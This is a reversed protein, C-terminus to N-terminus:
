SGSWRRVYCMERRAPVRNGTSRTTDLITSRSSAEGISRCLAKDRPRDMRRYSLARATRDWITVGVATERGAYVEIKKVFVEPGIPPEVGPRDIREGEIWILDYSGAPVPVRCNAGPQLTIVMSAFAITVPTKPKGQRSDWLRVRGIEASPHEIDLFVGKDKMVSFFAFVSPWDTKWNALYLAEQRVTGGPVGTESEQHTQMLQDARLGLEVRAKEREPLHL